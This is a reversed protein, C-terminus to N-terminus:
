RLRPSRADQEEVPDVDAHRRLRRRADFQFLRAPRRSLARRGRGRPGERRDRCAAGNRRHRRLRPPWFKPPITPRCGCSAPSTPPARRWCRHRDARPRVACAGPRHRRFRLWRASFRPRTRQRRRSSPASSRRGRPFRRRFAFFAAQSPEPCLQEEWPKKGSGEM